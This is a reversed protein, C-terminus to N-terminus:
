PGDHRLDRGGLGQEHDAAAGPRGAHASDSVVARRPRREDALPLVARDQYAPDHQMDYLRAVSEVAARFAPHTTVDEVRENGLWVERRDRLGAIFEAGTRVGM